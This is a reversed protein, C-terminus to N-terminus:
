DYVDFDVVASILSASELDKAVRNTWNNNGTSRTDEVILRFVVVGGAWKFM